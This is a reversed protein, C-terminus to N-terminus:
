ASRCTIYAHTSRALHGSRRAWSGGVGCVACAPLKERFTSSPVCVRVLINAKQAAAHHYFPAAASRWSRNKEFVRFIVTPEADRKSRICGSDVNCPGDALKCFGRRCERSRDDKQPTLKEMKCLQDRAGNKRFCRAGTMMLNLACKASRSLSVEEGPLELADAKNSTQGQCAMGFSLFGDETLMNTIVPLAKIRGLTFFRTLHVRIKRLLVQRFRQGM